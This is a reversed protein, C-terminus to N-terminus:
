NENNSRDEVRNSTKEEILNEIFGFITIYSIDIYVSTYNLNYRVIIFKFNKKLIPM